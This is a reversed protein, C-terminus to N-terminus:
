NILDISNFVLKICSIFIPRLTVPFNQSAKSAVGKTVRSLPWTQLSSVDNWCIYYALLCLQDIFSLHVSQIYICRSFHDSCKSYSSYNSLRSDFGSLTSVITIIPWFGSITTLQIEFPHAAIKIYQWNTFLSSWWQSFTGLITKIIM